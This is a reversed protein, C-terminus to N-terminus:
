EVAFFVTDRPLRVAIDIEDGFALGFSQKSYVKVLGCDAAVFTSLWGKSTQDEQVFTCNLKM